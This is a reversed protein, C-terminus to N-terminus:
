IRIVYERASFLNDLVLKVSTDTVKVGYHGAWFQCDKGEHYFYVYGINASFNRFTHKWEHWEGNNWQPITHNFEIQDIKNFQKDLLTVLCRYQCACDKRAAYHDVIEISPKTKSLLNTSFGKAALDIMQYKQCLYHTTAFKKAILNNIFYEKAGGADSEILFGSHKVLRKRAEKNQNQNENFHAWVVAFNKRNKDADCRKNDNSEFVWETFGNDGCPNKILNKNFPVNEITNVITANRQINILIQSM